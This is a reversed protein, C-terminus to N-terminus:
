SSSAIKIYFLINVNIPCTELDGGAVQIGSNTGTWNAAGFTSSGYGWANENYTTPLHPVPGTVPQQPAATACGQLSGVNDGTQGNPQAATRSGADPDRAQGRDTGRLFYGGYNPIRFNGQDDGGNDYGIADFLDKYQLSYLLKGNCLLWESPPTQNGPFGVIAGVPFIDSGASPTKSLIYHDVNINVPRTEKDGAGTATFAVSTAGATWQSNSYGAVRDSTGQDNGLWGLTITFPAQPRGTADAQISGTADGGVGGPAMPTRNGADPDRGTGGDVGRLFRGRYDPLNFNSADGGHATGIANYLEPQNKELLSSGDCVMYWSSLTKSKSSSNGAFAVVAGIPLGPTGAPLAADPLLKIIFNVYANIPRTEKDGGANSSFTQTSGSALALLLSANSGWYAWNRANPLNPVTAVFPSSGPAATYFGELSGVAPGWAGGSAPATRSGAEKDITGTTDVGRLFRGRCDPINFYTVGDGGNSTGIVKFLDSYTTCLLKSGDCIAWGLRNLNVNNLNGAYAVVSGVPVSGQPM